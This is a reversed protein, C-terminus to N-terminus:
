QLEYSSTTIKGQALIQGVQSTRSMKQSSAFIDGFALSYKPVPKRGIHKM